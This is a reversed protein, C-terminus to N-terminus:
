RRPVAFLKGFLILSFVVWSWLLLALFGMVMGMLTLWSTQAFIAAMVPGGFVAAGILVIIRITAKIWAHWKHPLWVNVVIAAAVCLLAGLLLWVGGINTVFEGIALKNYVVYYVAIAGSAIALIGGIFRATAANM